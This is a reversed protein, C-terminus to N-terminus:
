PQLTDAFLRPDDTVIGDVGARVLARLRPADNVTWAIVAAGEEHARAVAARTVVLHHLSAVCAGTRRLLAPLRLPLALRLSVVAALAAPALVRRGSLGFRDHPYGVGLRLSPELRHLAALPTLLPSTVLTRDLLDHRRLAEVLTPEHGASKLDLHLGVEATGAFYALAAELPPSDPRVRRPDHAVVLTGDPLALADFEVLDVGVAVATRFGELTNEPALAKAGRHGIRLVRGDGRLLRM